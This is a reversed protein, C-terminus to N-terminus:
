LVKDVYPDHSKTYERISAALKLIEDSPVKRIVREGDGTRVEAQVQKTEEDIRFSVDVGLSNMLQQMPEVIKLLETGNGTKETTRPRATEGQRTEAAQRQTATSEAPKELRFNKGYAERMGQINDTYTM